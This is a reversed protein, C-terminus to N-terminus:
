NILLCIFKEHNFKTKMENDFHLTKSINRSFHHIAIKTSTRVFKTSKLWLNYIRIPAFFFVPRTEKLACDNSLSVSRKFVFSVLEVWPHVLWPNGAASCGMPKCKKFLGHSIWGHTQSFLLFALHHSIWGDNPLFDGFVAPRHSIWGDSPVDQTKQRHHSSGAM